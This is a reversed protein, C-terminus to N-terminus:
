AEKIPNVTKIFERRLSDIKATQATVGIAMLFVLLLLKIRLPM